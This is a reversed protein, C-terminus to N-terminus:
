ALQMGLCSNAVAATIWRGTGLEASALCTIRALFVLFDVCFYRSSSSFPFRECKRETQAVRQRGGTFSPPRKKTYADSALLFSAM